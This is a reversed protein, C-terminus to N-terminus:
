NGPGPTGRFEGSNGGGGGGGNGGPRLQPASLNGFLQYQYSGDPARANMLAAEFMPKYMSAAPKQWLAPSIKLRLRGVVPAYALKPQLVVVGGELGLEADGGRFELKDMALRGKDAKGAVTLTGLSVPPINMPSSFPPIVANGGGIGAQAVTLAITGTAKHLEAGPLTLDIRGSAQGNLDMGTKMRLPLVAKLNLDALEVELRREDGSLDTRGALTGGFAAARWSLVRKGILLPLPRLSASLEDLPIKLGAADTLTVGEMSVGLLGSPGVDQVDIQWGRQGAEYILRERVAESPFTLRLCLVFAVAAFAGYLLRPHLTLWAPLKM